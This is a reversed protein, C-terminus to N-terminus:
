DGSRNAVVSLRELAVRLVRSVQMQSVGLCEAIESQKLGASFRLELMRRQREDLASLSAQITARDEVLEYGDDERGLLEILSRAEEGDAGQMPSDTSVGGQADGAQLAEVVEERSAGTAAALEDVTPARGTRSTHEEGAQRVEAVREQLRRPVRVAWATERFSRKIEGLITPVAFSTFAFGRDPDFGQLAKVLGLCAIQELDDVSDAARTYRLALKRALPRFQQVLRDLDEPRREARYRRLLRDVDGGPVGPHM